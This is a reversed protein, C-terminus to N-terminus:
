NVTLRATRLARDIRTKIMQTASGPNTARSEADPPPETLRETFWEGYSSIHYEREMTGAPTHYEGPQAWILGHRQLTDLLSYVVERLGPDARTISWAMWARHDQGREAHHAPVTAMLRLLRVHPVDLDDLVRVFLQEQDVLAGDTETGSAIARGLARRKDRSATDQAIILALALLEQKRQDSVAQGIFELLEEDTQAGAAAAADLLTDAAHEARNRGLVDAVKSLATELAQSLATAAAGLVPDVADATGAGIAVVTRVALERRSADTM